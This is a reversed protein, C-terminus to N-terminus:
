FHASLTRYRHLLRSWKSKFIFDKYNKVVTTNIHIFSEIQVIFIYIYKFFLYLDCFVCNKGPVSHKRLGIERNLIVTIIYWNVTNDNEYIDPISAKVPKSVFTEKCELFDM